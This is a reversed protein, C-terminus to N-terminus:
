QWIRRCMPDNPTNSGGVRQGGHHEELALIFGEEDAEDTTLAGADKTKETKDGKDTNKTKEDHAEKRCEKAVHGPKGCYFSGDTKPDKKSKDKGKTKSGKSSGKDGKHGGKKGKGEGKGKYLAGVDVDTGTKTAWDRRRAVYVAEGHERVQQRKQGPTANLLLRDRFKEDVLRYTMTAIKIM